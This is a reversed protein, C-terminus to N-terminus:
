FLTYLLPAVATGSLVVIGGLVLLSVVIPLLWWKKNYRLLEWFERVMGQSGYEAERAFGNPSVKKEQFTSTRNKDNM